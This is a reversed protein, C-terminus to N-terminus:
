KTGGNVQINLRSTVISPTTALAVAGRAWPGVGPPRRPESLSESGGPTLRPAVSHSALKM